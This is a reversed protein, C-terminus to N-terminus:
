TEEARNVTKRRLLVPKALEVFVSYGLRTSM